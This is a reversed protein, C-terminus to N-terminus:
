EIWETPEDQFSVFLQPFVNLSDLVKRVKCYANEYTNANKSIHSLVIKQNSNCVEGLVRAGECTNLHGLDSVLRNVYVYGLDRRLIVDDCYSSEFYIVDLTKLIHKIEDSVYGLDTFFGVKKGNEFVYSLAENSDHSKGVCFVKLDDLEFGEHNKVFVVKELSVGLGKYTGRSMYFRCDVQKSFSELGVCHDCHEHTVFVYDIDCVDIGRLSLIDKTRKFSLGLDVLIKVGSESELYFCNGSSGSALAFSKM